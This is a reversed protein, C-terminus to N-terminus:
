SFESMCILLKLFYLYDTAEDQTTPIYDLLELHYNHILHKRPFNDRNVHNWLKNRLTDFYNNHYFQSKQKLKQRLPAIKYLLKMSIRNPENKNITIGPIDYQQVINEVLNENIESVSSPNRLLNLVHKFRNPDEDLFFIDSRNWRRLLMELYSSKKLTEETTEFIKGGCNIQIQSM